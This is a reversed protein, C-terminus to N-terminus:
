GEGSLLVAHLQEVLSGMVVGASETDLVTVGLYRVHVHTVTQTLPLLKM